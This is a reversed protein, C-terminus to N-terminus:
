FLPLPRQNRFFHPRSTVLPGDSIVHCRLLMVSLKSKGCVNNVCNVSQTNHDSMQSDSPQLILSNQICSFKVAMERVCFHARAESNKYTLGKTFIFRRPEETELTYSAGASLSVCQSHLAGCVESCGPLTYRRQAQSQNLKVTNRRCCVAAMDWWWQELFPSMFYM